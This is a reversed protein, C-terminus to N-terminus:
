TIRTSPPCRFGHRQFRQVIGGEHDVAIFIDPRILHVAEILNKLQEPNTFNRTFLILAGVNPHKLLATEEESIQTGLLDIMFMNPVNKDKLFINIISYQILNFKKISEYIFCNSVNKLIFCYSVFNCAM